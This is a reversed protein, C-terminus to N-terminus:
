RGRTRVGIDTDIKEQGVKDSSGDVSTTSFQTEAAKDLSVSSALWERTKESIAWHLTFPGDVKTALHVRIKNSANTVLVLLEKDGLKYIKKNLVDADSQEEISKSFLQLASLVKPKLAVTGKSAVPTPKKLLQMIDRTKRNIREPTSYVKKAPQKQVRKQTVGETTQIEGINMKKRLDDLSTGKELERQLEKRAEEFEKKEQEPSYSQKGNREWRLYSQ